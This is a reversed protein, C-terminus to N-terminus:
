VSYITPLTLHTYSVPIYIICIFTSYIHLANERITISSSHIGSGSCIKGKLNNFPYHPKLKWSLPANMSFFFVM